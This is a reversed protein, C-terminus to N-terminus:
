YVNIGKERQAALRDYETWFPSNGKRVLHINFDSNELERGKRCWLTSMRKEDEERLFGDKEDTKKYKTLFYVNDADHLQQGSGRMNSKSADDGDMGSKTVSHICNVSVDFTTAIQKLNRSIIGTRETEDKAGDIFLMAYDIILFGFNYRKKAQRIIHHLQNSTISRYMLFLPLEANEEIARDIRGWEDANIFGSRISRTPVGSTGSLIRRALNEKKLEMSLFGGAIHKSMELAIGGLLWTKGVGPEGVWFTLEGGQQGGTEKDLKNLGTPIGWVEKPSKSREEAEDYVDSFVQKLPQFDDEVIINNEIADLETKIEDVAGAIPKGSYALKAISNALDILRRSEEHTKIVNAYADANLSTPTASVLSTLYASGGVEDLQKMRALEESVTLLDIPARKEHLKHFASWIWGNRHIYFSSSSVTESLGFYIAPDILVSGLLAEEAERSHPINTM